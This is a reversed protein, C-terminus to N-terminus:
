PLFSDSRKSEALLYNRLIDSAFLGARFPHGRSETADYVAKSPESGTSSQM